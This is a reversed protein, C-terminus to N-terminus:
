PGIRDEVWIIFDSEDIIGAALDEIAAATLLQNGSPHTWTRGNLDVFMRMSALACRKNGDIILPHNKVLRSGLIAAREHFEDYFTIGGFEAYPASLASLLENLRLTPLLRDIPTETIVEAIALYDALTIQREEDM